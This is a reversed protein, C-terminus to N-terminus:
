VPLLFDVSTNETAISCRAFTDVYVSDVSAMSKGDTSTENTSTGKPRGDLTDGNQKDANEKDVDTGTSM